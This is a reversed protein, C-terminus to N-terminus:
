QQWLLKEGDKGIYIVKRIQKFELMVGSGSGDKAKNGLLTTRAGSVAVVGDGSNEADFEIRKINYPSQWRLVSIYKDREIVEESVNICLEVDDEAPAEGTVPIPNVRKEGGMDVVTQGAPNLYISVMESDDDPGASVWVATPGDAFEALASERQPLALESLSLVQVDVSFDDVSKLPLQFLVRWSGFLLMLVLLVGLVARRTKSNLRRKVQLLSGQLQQEQEQIQMQMYQEREAECPAEGQMLHCLHACEACVDLHEDVAARSEAAAVEDLYLPLLDRIIGCAYKM